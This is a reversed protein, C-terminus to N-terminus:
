SFSSRSFLFPNLIFLPNFYSFDLNHSSTFIESVFSYGYVRREKGDEAWYAPDIQNTVLM